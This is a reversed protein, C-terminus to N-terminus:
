RKTEYYESSANNRKKWKYLHPIDCQSELLSKHKLVCSYKWKCELIRSIISGMVFIHLTRGLVGTMERKMHHVYQLVCTEYKEEEM